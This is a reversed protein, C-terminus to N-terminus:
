RGNYNLMTMINGRYKLDGKLGGLQKGRMQNQLDYKTRAFRM